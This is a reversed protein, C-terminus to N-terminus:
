AHLTLPELNARPCLGRGEPAPSVRACFGEVARDAHVM